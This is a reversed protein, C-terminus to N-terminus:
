KRKSWYNSSWAIKKGKIGDDINKLFDPAPTAITGPESEPHPGSMAQLLLASDKVYWSMPGM